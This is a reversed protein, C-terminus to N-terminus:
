FGIFLDGNNPSWNNRVAICQIYISFLNVTYLFLLRYSILIEKRDLLKLICFFICEVDIRSVAHNIDKPCSPDYFVGRKHHMFNNNVHVYVSVPGVNAVASKLANEGSVQKYGTDTAAKM